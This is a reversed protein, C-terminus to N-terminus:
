ARVVSRVAEGEIEAARQWSFDEALKSAENAIRTRLEDDSLLRVLRAAFARVDGVPAALRGAPFIEDFVPLAYTVCPLGARMAEAVAIGWGEEKSAFAFVSAAYLAANREDDSVRGLKRVNRTLGLEVILVDLEREFAVDDSAGIFTLQQDPLADVVIRWARVLDDVGKTPHLRGVFIAGGRAGYAPPKPVHDVGSTTIAIPQRFGLKRLESAVLHSSCAVAGFRGAVIALSLRDAAFAITNRVFPGDREGARRVIHHVLAMCRKGCALAAPLADPLGHSTAVLADCARLERCRFIGFIARFLFLPAKSKLVHDWSPMAVFAAGPVRRLLAERDNAPAFIVIDAWAWRRVVELFHVHGGAEAGAASELTNALVGIRPRRATL